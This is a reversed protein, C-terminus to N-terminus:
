ARRRDSFLTVEPMGLFRMAPELWGPKDGGLIATALRKGIRVLGGTMSTLWGIADVFGANTSLTAAFLRTRRDELM